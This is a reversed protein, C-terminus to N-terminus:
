IELLLLQTLADDAIAILLLLDYHVFVAVLLCVLPAGLVGVFFLAVVVALDFGILVRNGCRSLAGTFAYVAFLDVAIANILVVDRLVEDM